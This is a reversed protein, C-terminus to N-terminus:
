EADSIIPADQQYYLANHQKIEAVLEDWRKKYDVM